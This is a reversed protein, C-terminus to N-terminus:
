QSLYALKFSRVTIFHHKETIVRSPQVVAADVRSVSTSMELINDRMERFLRIQNRTAHAYESRTEEPLTLTLLSEDTLHLLLASYFNEDDQVNKLILLKGTSADYQVPISPLNFEDLRAEDVHINIGASAMDHIM